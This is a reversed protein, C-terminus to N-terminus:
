DDLATSSPIACTQRSADHSVLEGLVKAQMQSDIQPTQRPCDILLRSIQAWTADLQAETQTIWASKSWM